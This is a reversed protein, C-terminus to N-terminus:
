ATDKSIFSSVAYLIGHFLIGLKNSEDRLAHWSTPNALTDAHVVSHRRGSLNELLTHWISAPVNQGKIPTWDTMAYKDPLKGYPFKYVTARMRKIERRLVSDTASDNDFVAEFRSGSLCHLVSNLGYRYFSGDVVNSSPNKNVNEKYSFASMDINVSNSHFFKILQNARKQIEPEPVGDFQVIKKSFERQMSKPMESFTPVNANLDSQIATNIDKLFGELASISLVCGARCLVDYLVMDNDFAGRAREVINNLEALRLDIGEALSYMQTTM